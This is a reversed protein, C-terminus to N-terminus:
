MTHIVSNLRLINLIRYVYIHALSRIGYNCFIKKINDEWDRRQRGRPRKRVLIRKHM